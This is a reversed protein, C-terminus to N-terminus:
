VDQKDELDPNTCLFKSPHMCKSFKPMLEALYRRQYRLTIIDVAYVNEKYCPSHPFDDAKCHRILLKYWGLKYWNKQYFKWFKIMQDENFFWETNMIFKSGLSWLSKTSSEVLSRWNIDGKVKEVELKMGNNKWEASEMAVDKRSWTTATLMLGKVVPLCRLMSRIAPPASDLPPVFMRIECSDGSQSHKILAEPTTTLFDLQKRSKVFEQIPCPSLGVELVLLDGGTNFMMDKFEKSGKKIVKVTQSPIHFVKVDLVVSAVTANKHSHGHVPGAICAGISIDHYNPYTTLILNEETLARLLERFVIGSECVVRTPSISLVRNLGRTCVLFKKTRVIWPPTYHWLLMNEAGSVMCNNYPNFYGILEEQTEPTFTLVYFSNLYTSFCSAVFLTLFIILRLVFTMPFLLWVLITSIPTLANTTNQTRSITAQFLTEREGLLNMAQSETTKGSRVAKVHNAVANNIQEIPIFCRFMNRPILQRVYWLRSLARSWGLNEGLVCSPRVILHHKGHESCFSKLQAECEAKMKIYSLELRKKPFTVVWSSFFCINPIDIKKSLELLNDMMKQDQKVNYTTALHMIWEYKRDTPISTLDNGTLDLKLEEVDEPTDGRPNRTVRLINFQERLKNELHHGIGGTSGTM